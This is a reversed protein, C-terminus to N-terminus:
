LFWYLMNPSSFFALSFHPPPSCHTLSNLYVLTGNQLGKQDKSKIYSCQSTRSVTWLLSFWSGIYHLLHNPCFMITTQVRSTAVSPVISPLCSIKSTTLSLFKQHTIFSLPESDHTYIESIRLLDERWLSWLMYTHIEEYLRLCRIIYVFTDYILPM